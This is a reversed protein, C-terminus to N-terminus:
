RFVSRRLDCHDFAVGLAASSVLRNGFLIMIVSFLLFAIGAEKGIPALQRQARRNLVWMGDLLTGPWTLSTGALAALTAGFFLFVGIPSLGVHAEKSAISGFGPRHRM